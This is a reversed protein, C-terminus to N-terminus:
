KENAERRLKELLPKISGNKGKTQKIGPLASMQDAFNQLVEETVVSDAHLSQSLIRWAERREDQNRKERRRRLHWALMDAAQLPAVKKDDKFVPTSGLLQRIPTPQTSKVFEYWVVARAGIAGQEDFIFDIPFTNRMTLHWQTLKLIMAYFCPFYPGRLDYPIVPGLIEEYQKRSVSCELFWPKYGIIINALAAVKRDRQQEDWGQFPGRRREAEVMHLYAIAPPKALEAQWSHSFAAWVSASQVWGALVLTKDDEESGSDDIYASFM